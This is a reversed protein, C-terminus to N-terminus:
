KTFCIADKVSSKKWYNQITINQNEALLTTTTINLKRNIGQFKACYPRVDSM